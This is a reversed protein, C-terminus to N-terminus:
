GYFCRQPISGCPSPPLFREGLYKEIPERDPVGSGGGGAGGNPGREFNKQGEGARKKIVGGFPGLTLGGPFIADVAHVGQQSIMSALM